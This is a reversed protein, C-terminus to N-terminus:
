NDDFLECADTGGDVLLMDDNLGEVTLDDNLGEVTLDEAMLRSWRFPVGVM